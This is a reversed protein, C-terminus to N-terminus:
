KNNGVNIFNNKNIQQRKYVIYNDVNVFFNNFIFVYYITNGTHMEIFVFAIKKYIYCYHDKGKLKMSELDSRLQVQYERYVEHACVGVFYDLSKKDRHKPQEGWDDAIEHDDSIMLNSANAMAIRQATQKWTERYVERYLNKIEEKYEIWYIPQVNKLM